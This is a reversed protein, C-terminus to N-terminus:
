TRTHWRAAAVRFAQSLGAAGALVVGGVGLGTLVQGTTHAVWAAPGAAIAGLGVTIPIGIKAITAYRQRKKYEDWRKSTMERLSDKLKKRSDEACYLGLTVVKTEFRRMVDQQAKESEQPFTQDESLSDLISSFLKICNEVLVDNAKKAEEIDDKCKKQFLPQSKKFSDDIMIALRHAYYNELKSTDRMVKQQKLSDLAATKAEEHEDDLLQEHLRPADYGLLRKMRKEYTLLEHDVAAQNGLEANAEVISKVDPLEDSQFLDTFKMILTALEKCTLPRSGNMKVSLSEPSLLMDMLEELVTIFETEMDNADGAFTSSRAVAKGPYPLLFGSVSTFFAKIDKERQKLGERTSNLRKEVLANGGQSGFAHDETFNWDRILFLLDQFPKEQANDKSMRGCEAFFQLNDLHDGKLNNMVNFVQLSSLLTSLAFIRTSDTITSNGDFIGQTDVLLLVAEVGSQLTVPIPPSMSMGNTHAECGSKWPFSDSKHELWQSKDSAKLYRTMSNLLFSKGTRFEGAVSIVVVPKDAVEDSLLYSRLVDENLHLTKKEGQVDVSLFQQSGIQIPMQFLLLLLPLTVVNM